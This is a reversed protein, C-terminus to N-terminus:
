KAYRIIVIGSGGSGGNLNGGQGSTRSGGGGGGGGTNGIGPFGATNSDGNTGNGGGGVGGIGATYSTRVGGGGGGAYTVSTGSISSATGAGGNGGGSVTGAAGAASAGGGGGGSHQPGPNYGAGGNNGQSPSTSPTNGSGGSNSSSGGGGSGGSIGAANLAGGGGGASTISSFVSNSGSAGNSSGVTGGAGGAGVTIAYSQATVSLGTGTRFGGAGGGGPGFSDNVGCGGGGGGAVVLYDCSLSQNPVFNGSMGFTHYWYNADSSVVGGTAKPTANTDAAIGYLSFTSGALFTTGLAVLTISTIANTNRWLGVGAIVEGTAYGYRSLVTKNTTSNGYNQIHITGNARLTSPTGDVIPSGFVTISTQNSGRWSGGFPMPGNVQTTSYNSGTDGNFRLGVTNGAVTTGFNSVVIIDTYSGLNSFTVEATATTLNQKDLAVYTNTPM